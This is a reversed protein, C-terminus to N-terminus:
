EDHQFFAQGVPGVRKKKKKGDGILKGKEEKKGGSLPMRAQRTGRKEILSASVVFVDRQGKRKLAV